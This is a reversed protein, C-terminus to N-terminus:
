KRAPLMLNSIYFHYPTNHMPLQPKKPPLSDQQIIIKNSRQQPHPEPLLPAHPHPESEDEDEHIRMSIRRKHQPDPHPPEFKLMHSAFYIKIPLMILFPVIENGKEINNQLLNLM